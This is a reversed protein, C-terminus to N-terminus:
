ATEPDERTIDLAKAVKDSTLVDFAHRYVNDMGSLEANDVQRRFQDFQDFSHM